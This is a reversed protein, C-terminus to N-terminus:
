QGLAIWRAYACDGSSPATMSFKSNTIGQAVVNGTNAMYPGIAIAYCSESFAIPFTISTAGSTKNYGWQEYEGLLGISAPMAM